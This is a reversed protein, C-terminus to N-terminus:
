SWVGTITIGGTAAVTYTITFTTHPSTGAATGKNTVKLNAYNADAAALAETLTSTTDAETVKAGTADFVLKDGSVLTQDPDAAAVQVMTLLIQANEQDQSWRSKDVYKLYQPAAVATLIAIIAIVIILEVLTFGKNAKRIKNMLKKM